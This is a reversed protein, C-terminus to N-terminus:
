NRLEVYDVKMAVNDGQWTPLWNNRANWFDENAHPSSNPWPKANGWNVTDSFYGNTGGVAVNLILYFDQDFPAMKSGSAWVNDGTFGGKQWFGAGPDVTLIEQDDVSTRIHDGTWELKYTHYDDHYSNTSKEGHTLDWKNINWAPGWHMTSSITGVGLPGDNGRTEMIDMEGSRPWTGYVSKKPMMWIAPWLWDGKPIKARIEITGYTIVAESSVKGSMIPPLMGNVGSRACGYDANNTCLGFIETLDMTGTRLFNEDFRPDDVTLTPYLFLNGDRSFVNKPDNTYVQFEWNRGGFM